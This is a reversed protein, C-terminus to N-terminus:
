VNLAEHTQSFTLYEKKNTFALVKAVTVVLVTVVMPEVVAVEVTVDVTRDDAMKSGPDLNCHTGTPAEM